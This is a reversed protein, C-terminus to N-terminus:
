DEVGSELDVELEYGAIAFLYNQLQHLSRINVRCSSPQRLRLGEVTFEFDAYSNGMRFIWEERVFNKFGCKELIEPTLPIPIIEGYYAEQIEEIFQTSYAPTKYSGRVNAAERSVKILTDYVFTDAHIQQVTIVEGQKTQVKNGYRLEKAHIM